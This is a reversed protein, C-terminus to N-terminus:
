PTEKEIYLKFYICAQRDKRVHLLMRPVPSCDTRSKDPTRVWMEVSTGDPMKETATHRYCVGLGNKMSVVEGYEFPMCLTTPHAADM